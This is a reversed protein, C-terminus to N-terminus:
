KKITRVLYTREDIQIRLLYVGASWGKGVNFNIRDKNVNKMHKEFVIQGTSNLCNIHIDKMLNESNISVQFESDFPNPFVTISETENVQTVSEPLIYVTDLLQSQCGNSGTLTLTIPYVGTTSYQITPNSLNSTNGNGFNWNFGTGSLSPNVSFSIPSNIAFAGSIQISSNIIVVPITQVLTDNGYPSIAVLTVFYNGDAAYTHSAFNNSTTLNNGDGFDWFVSSYPSPISALFDLQGNCSPMTYTFGVSPLDLIQIYNNIAISDVGSTNWIKLSVPYTGSTQYTVVPNQITSTAPSGGPFDWEWQSPNGSSLDQFNINQNVYATTPNASFMASPISDKIFITYDEAQGLNIPSCITMTNYAAAIRLRLPVNVVANGPPNFYYTFQSGTYLNNVLIENTSFIGDNNRDFYISYRQYYGSSNNIVLPYTIGKTLTTYYQCTFDEYGSIDGNSISNITNLTVNTIGCTNSFQSTPMLCNTGLPVSFVQVSIEHQISDTGMSNSVVLTVTYTGSSLYQHTPNQLNSTVGDGFAWSWTSPANTSLDTFQVTAQCPVTILSAFDACPKNTYWVPCLLTDNFNLPDNSHIVIQITDFGTSFSNNTVQLYMTDSDGSQLSGSNNYITFQGSSFNLAWDVANGIFKKQEINSNDFDFGMYIARGMGINRYGVVTGSSVGAVNVYGTSTINQIFVNELVYPLPAISESLPVASNYLTLLTGLSTGALSGNFLGTHYLGAYNDGCVIVNGGNQVFSLIENACSDYIYTFGNETEPIIFVKAGLLDDHLLAASNAYSTDIVLNPLQSSIANLTKNFEGTVPTMDAGITWIVVKNSNTTTSNSWYNLTGGGTNSILVPVNVTDHCGLNVQSILSNAVFNPNPQITVMQTITDIFASGCSTSILTVTYSGGNMYVHVPNQETSYTGDGFDWFWYAGGVSLNNFWVSDLVAPSAPSSAFAASTTGGVSLHSKWHAAFGPAISTGNTQFVIYMKGSTAVVDPPDIYGSASLLLPSQANPGDYVKLVDMFNDVSFNHFILSISDTCVGPDILISCNSNNAYYANPGGQDFLYGTSDTIVQNASPQCMLTPVYVRVLKTISDMGWANGVVLKVSYIGPSSFVTDFGPLNGGTPSFGNVSWSWSTPANTSIDYFSLTEGVYAITDSHIFIDAVPPAFSSDLITVTYDESQGSNLTACPYYTSGPYPECLVRLRLPVNYVSGVPPSFLINRHFGNGLAPPLVETFQFIGDNNYDIWANVNPFFNNLTLKLVSYSGSNLNTFQTCSFDMNGESANSSNHNISGVQVNMIGYQPNGGGTVSCTANIPGGLNAIQVVKNATDSGFQNAAVMTVTYTGTASYVHTISDGVGTTGDGFDWFITSPMHTSSDKLNVVGSCDGQVPASIYACPKPDVHVYLPMQISSNATDNTYITYYITDLGAPMQTSIVKLYTTDVEGALATGNSTIVSTWSKSLLGWKVSNALLKAMDNNYTTFDFGVFIAKGAGMTRYAVVSNMLGNQYIPIANLFNSGITMNLGIINPPVGSTIPTTSNVQNINWSSTTYGSGAVSFLGSMATNNALNGCFIVTGGNNAFNQIVSACSLIVSNTIMEQDPILLVSHGALDSDLQGPSLAFSTDLSYDSLYLNLADITNEFEGGSSTDVGSAWVLVGESSGQNYGIVNWNLPGGQTNQIYIPLLTTDSCGLSTSLVGPTVAITPSPLVTVWQSTTDMVGSCTSVVLTVQYNGSTTYAHSPNALTSTAGDGFQWYHNGANVSTSVFNMPYNLAAPSNLVSFNATTTANLNSSTKWEAVFGSSTTSSNSFFTIYMSGSTGIVPGPIVNGSCALLLPASSNPGDYVKLSDCCAQTSFASFSLKISDACPVPAILLNCNSNDSYNYYPGGSDYLNGLHATSVQNAAPLCLRVSDYVFIQKIMSDSGFSNSVNLQITYFGSAGFSITPNNSTSNSINGGSVIWNWSTPGNTSIDQLYALGGLVLATDSIVFNALPPASSGTVLFKYDEVQGNFPALCANSIAGLTQSIVRMRLPVNQTANLPINFFGNHQGVVSLEEFVKESASFIADNNFDAFVAVNEPSSNGTIIQLPYTSGAIGNMTGVCTFDQYGEAQAPFSSHQLNGVSFYVIGTNPAVSTGTPLCGMPQVGGVNSINIYNLMTLTDSSNCTSTGMSILQVTYVGPASYVHTPSTVTSTGGDGFDWLFSSANVSLNSFSVSAPAVCFSTASAMFASHVGNAYQAGVGVAFWANTTAIVQPSCAGFLDSASQISYTRADYYDSNATLYVTLTRYAIAAADDMGIATVSFTDGLDNIGMGGQSLLYFWHNQVQSNTHVGGNDLTGTYWYTGLYTDPQSTLNPHQINRFPKGNYACQDGVLFNATAPNAYYDIVVGFIDSFSENLAGPEYSYMLAASYQTVAHTIEHAVIDMSTLPGYSVGDGDGYTMETGNWFANVYNIGYHVYSNITSGLNDYSLRGHKSFYYDWTKEAGFHADNATLDVNWHNDADIFDVANTVVTGSLLNQTKIGRSGSERLRYYGAALSDTTIAAVGSYNTIATGSVDSFHIRNEKRIVSFDDISLYYFNRFPGNLYGSVDLKYCLVLNQDSSVVYVFEMWKIDLESLEPHRNQITNRASILVDSTDRVEIKTARVPLNFLDGNFQEIQGEKQHVKLMSYEVRYDGVFQQYLAHQYGLRDTDVKLQKIRYNDRNPFFHTAVFIDLDKTSLPMGAQFIVRRISSDAQIEILHANPIKRAAEPGNLIIRPSQACLDLALGLGCIFVFLHKM